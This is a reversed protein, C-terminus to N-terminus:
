GGSRRASYFVDRFVSGDHPAPMDICKAGMRLALTRAIYLGLGSGRSGNLPRRVGRQFKGFLRSQQDAPVGIGEDAGEIFSHQDIGVSLRVESGAPSFRSPNSILNDLIQDLGDQDVRATVSQEQEAITLTIRCAKATPGARRAATALRKRLDCCLVELARQVTHPSLNLALALASSSWAEGDALLALMEAHVRAVPPALGAVASSRHPQLAFGRWTAGLVAMPALLRRLRGM